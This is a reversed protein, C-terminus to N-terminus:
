ICAGQLGADSHLGYLAVHVRTLVWPTLIQVVHLLYARSFGRQSSGGLRGLLGDIKAQMGMFVQRTRDKVM